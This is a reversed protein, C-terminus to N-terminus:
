IFWGGGDVTVYLRTESGKLDSSHDRGSEISPTAGPGENPNTLRNM